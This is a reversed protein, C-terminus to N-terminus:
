FSISEGGLPIHTTTIRGVFVCAWLPYVSLRQFTLVLALKEVVIASASMSFFFFATTSLRHIIRVLENTM